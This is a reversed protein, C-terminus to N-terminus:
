CEPAAEQAGRGTAVPWLVGPGPLVVAPPGCGPCSPVASAEAAVLWFERGM